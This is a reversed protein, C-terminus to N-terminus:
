KSLKQWPDFESRPVLDSLVFCCFSMSPYMLFPPQERCLSSVGVSEYRCFAVQTELPLGGFARDVQGFATSIVEFTM